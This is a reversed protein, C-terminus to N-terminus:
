LAVRLRVGPIPGRPGDLLQPVVVGGTVAGVPAGALFVLVGLTKSRGDRGADRALLAGPVAGGIGGLVFGAQAGDLTYLGAAFQAGFIAAAPYAVLAYEEFVDILALPSGVLLVLGGALAGASAAGVFSGMTVDGPGLPLASPEAGVPAQLAYVVSLPPPPAQARVGVATLFVVLPLLRAM